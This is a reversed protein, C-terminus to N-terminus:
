YDGFPNGESFDILSDAETEIDENSDFSQEFSDLDHSKVTYTASSASGIIIEGASFKGTNLSVQLSTPPDATSTDTDKDFNKVRATVGSSQGTVIENFYFTGIGSQPSNFVLSPQATYGIGSNIIRVTSIGAGLYSDLVPNIVATNIGTPPATMTTFPTASYGTAAASVLVQQVGYTSIISCTAAAGSGGGGTITITPAVTYGAGTNTMEIRYISTVNARETTIAVAHANKGGIPASSIAVNPASTYGSGDNNLFIENICGSSIGVTATATIGLGVLNVTTIYGEDGVTDDVEGISTDILENEYEFLECSLDYTYLKGLQYFPKESEVKKIEFLREGLPFYILDGEKPRQILDGFTYGTIRGERIGSSMGELFPSIFDEFRERSVTLNVENKLKLGFKTMVDYDPAYGDFNNIYMEILFSDDFKSSQIEKIINDTKFIKRPLYYVDVGYIQIQENILDQVLNQERPSGQLFYSNLTM